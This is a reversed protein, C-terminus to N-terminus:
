RFPGVRFLAEAEHAGGGFHEPEFYPQEECPAARAKAFGRFLHQSAENSPSVTAELFRVAEFAPRAVLHGLLKKALGLGRARPHVAIQWVFLTSPDQPLRYGAVFGLVGSRDEVLASTTRFHTAFLLYAYESNVELPPCARVCAFLAKGDALHPHRFLLDSQLVPM